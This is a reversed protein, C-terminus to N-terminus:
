KNEFIVEYGLDKGEAVVDKRTMLKSVPISHESNFYDKGDNVTTFKIEKLLSQPKEEKVEEVPEPNYKPDLIFSRGFAHTAELAKQIKPDDTIYSMGKFNSSIKEFKINKVEDEVKITIM